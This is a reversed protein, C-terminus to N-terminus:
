LGREPAQGSYSLSATGNVSASGRRVRVVMEKTCAVQTQRVQLRVDHSRGSPRRADVLACTKSVDVLDRSGVVLLIRIRHGDHRIEAAKQFQTFAYRVGRLAPGRDGQTQDDPVAEHLM